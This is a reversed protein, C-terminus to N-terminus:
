CDSRSEPSWAMQKFPPQVGRAYPTITPKNEKLWALGQVFFEAAEMTTLMPIGLEVARRRIQYEDELMDAYKEMVISSPIDIILDVMGKALYELINPHRDPEGIKHLVTVDKM